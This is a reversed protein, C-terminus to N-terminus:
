ARRRWLQGGVERVLHLGAAARRPISTTTVHVALSAAAHACGAYSLQLPGSPCAVNLCRVGM